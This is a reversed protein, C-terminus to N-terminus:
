KTKIKRNLLRALNPIFRKIYIMLLEKGGVLVEPKQKWIGNLIKKAAKESTIGSAQGADLKGHPTGNAQLAHYSINTQVRGPCVMVVCINQNYYEAAITEFFGYLAHKSACYASRLPFGFRGAISTTVAITGGGNQIMKPLIHKTILIPSFYNITMLKQDVDFSTEVALSRQSIGANNYLIDVYDFCDYAQEVLKEISYLDSLDYPLVECALAGVALCREKLTTLVDAQRSTLILKAQERAFALACAEGIGSSAGTIWIVKNEFRSM